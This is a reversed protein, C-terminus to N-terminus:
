VDADEKEFILNVSGSVKVEDKFVGHIKLIDVYSARRVEEKVANRALESLGKYADTVSMLAEESYKAKIDEVRLLVKDQNCFKCARVWLSKKNEKGSEPHTLLYTETKSLGCALLRAAAEQKFSLGKDTKQKQLAQKKLLNNYDHLEEFLYLQRPKQPGGSLLALADNVRDQKQREASSLINQSGKMDGRLIFLRLEAKFLLFSRRTFGRM